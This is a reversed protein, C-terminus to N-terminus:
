HSFGGGVWLCSFPSHPPVKLFDFVFPERFTGAATFNLDHPTTPALEPGARVILEPTRLAFHFDHTSHDGLPNPNSHPRFEYGLAM